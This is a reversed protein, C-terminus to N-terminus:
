RVAAFTSATRLPPHRQGRQCRTPWPEEVTWTDNARQLPQRIRRTAANPPVACAIKAWVMAHYFRLATAAVWIESRVSGDGNPMFIDCINDSGIRVAVGALVMDLIRAISNHVPTLMPRLQLMSLAATPCCIVGVNYKRLNEVLRQFRAEDYCSPSIAHVAWV